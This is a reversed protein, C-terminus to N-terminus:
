NEKENLLVQRLWVVADLFNSPGESPANSVATCRYHKPAPGAYWADEAHFGWSARKSPKVHVYTKTGPPAMPTAEFNFSGELAEHLSLAPNQRCPRLMNLTM